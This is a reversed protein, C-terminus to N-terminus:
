KGRRFGLAALDKYIITRSVGFIDAVRAVNLASPNNNFLELAAKIRQRRMASDCAEAVTHENVAVIITTYVRGPLPAGITKVFVDVIKGDIGNILRNMKETAMRMSHVRNVGKENVGLVLKKRPESGNVLLNVSVSAGAPGAHIDCRMEEILGDTKALEANLDKLTEQLARNVTAAGKARSIFEM